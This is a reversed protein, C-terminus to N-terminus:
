NYKRRTMKTSTNHYEKLFEQLVPDIPKYWPPLKVANNNSYLLNM